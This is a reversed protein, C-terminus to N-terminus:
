GRGLYQDLPVVAYAPQRSKKFVLVRDVGLMADRASQRLWEDLKLREARKCEVQLVRGNQVAIWDGGSELGRVEFGHLEFLRAVDREFALGKARSNVVAVVM